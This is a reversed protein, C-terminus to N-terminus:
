QNVQLHFEQQITGVVKSATDTEMQQEKENLSEITQRQQAANSDEINTEITKYGMTVFGVIFFGVIAVIAKIARAESKRSVDMLAQNQENNICSKSLVEINKRTEKSFEDFGEMKENISSIAASTEASKTITIKTNDDIKQEIRSFTERMTNFSGSLFAVKSEVTEEPM